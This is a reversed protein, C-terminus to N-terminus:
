LGSHFDCLSQGTSLLSYTSGSLTRVRACPCKLEIFCKKKVSMVRVILLKVMGGCCLGSACQGTLPGVAGSRAAVHPTSMGSRNRRRPCVAVTVRLPPRFHPKEPPHALVLFCTYSHEDQCVARACYSYTTPQACQTGRKIVKPM